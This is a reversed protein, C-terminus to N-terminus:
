IGSEAEAAKPADDFFTLRFAPIKPNDSEPVAQLYLRGGEAANELTELTKQDIFCTYGNGSKSPWFGISPAFKKETTKKNTM